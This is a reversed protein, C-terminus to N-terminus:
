TSGSSGTIAPHPRPATRSGPWRRYYGIGALPALIRATESETRHAIEFRGARAEAEDAQSRLEHARSRQRRAEARASDGAITM